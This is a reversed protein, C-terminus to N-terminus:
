EFKRLLSALQTRSKVNTKQYIRHTHDKITQLTVFLKDAIEKNTKGKYIEMIVEAERSTIGYQQLFTDFSDVKQDQVKKIPLKAMYIVYVGIGTNTLFFLFIFTLESIPHTIWNLFLPLHIAGSLFILLILVSKKSKQFYQIDALTLLMCIFSIVSLILLAYLQKVNFLLDFGRYAMYAVVILIVTLMGGLIILLGPKKQLLSVAWLVIMTIGILLFPTGILALYGSLPSLNDYKPISSFFIRLFIESWMAYFGFTYIMILAYQLLRFSRINRYAKVRYFILIGVATLALCFFFCVWIYLRNIEM